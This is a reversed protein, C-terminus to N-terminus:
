SALKLEIDKILANIGTAVVPEKTEQSKFPYTYNNYNKGSILLLPIDKVTDIAKLARSVVMSDMETLMSDILILDPHCKSIESFVKYSRHLPCVDYGKCGLLLSLRNLEVVDEDIIMIRKAM